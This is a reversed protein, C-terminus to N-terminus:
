VWRGKRRRRVVLLAVSGVAALLLAGGAVILVTAGATGDDAPEPTAAPPAGGAAVPAVAQAAPALTPESTPAATVAATPAPRPTFTATPVSTATPRPTPTATPTPVPTPTPTLTPVPTPTASPTPMPTPTATPAPTPTATPEPTPTPVPTPTPPAGVRVEANGEVPREQRTQNKIVGSFTYAGKELPATVSYTFSGSELLTFAVTQGDVSVAEEPLGSGVYGFGAPLTEVVQAFAGYGAAAISVELRGGPEVWSSSFGRTANHDQAGATGEMAFFCVAALLSAVLLGIAGRGFASSAIQIVYM